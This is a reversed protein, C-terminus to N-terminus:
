PQYGNQEISAETTYILMVSEVSSAVILTISLMVVDSILRAHSWSHHLTSPAIVRAKESMMEM